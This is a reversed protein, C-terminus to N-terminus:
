FAKQAKLIPTVCVSFFNNTALGAIFGSAAPRCDPLLISAIEARQETIEAQGLHPTARIILGLKWLNLLGKKEFLGTTSWFHTLACVYDSNQPILRCDITIQLLMEFM